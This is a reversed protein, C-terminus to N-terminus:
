GRPPSPWLEGFARLLDDVVRHLDEAAQADHALHRDLPQVALDPGRM